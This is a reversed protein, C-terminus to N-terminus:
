SAAQSTIRQMATDVWNMVRRVMDRHRKNNIDMDMFRKKRGKILMLLKIDEKQGARAIGRVAVQLLSLLLPLYEMSKRYKYIRADPDGLERLEKRVVSFATEGGILSLFIFMERKLAFLFNIPFSSGPGYAGDLANQFELHITRVKKLFPKEMQDIMRSVPIAVERNIGENVMLVEEPTIETDIHLEKNYSRILITCLMFANRDSYQISLPNRCIDSLIFIAAKKPQKLREILRQMANLFALRDKRTVMEKLYYWLFEFVKKEHRIFDSIRAEFYDRSFGGEATFCGSLLRILERADEPEIKFELAIMRYDAESFTVEKGIMKKVKLRTKARAYYFSFPKALSPPLDTFFVGGGADTYEIKRDKMRIKDFVEDPVYELRKRINNLVEENIEQYDWDGEIKKLLEAIMSLRDILAAPSITDFDNGYISEMIKASQEPTSKFKEDIIQVIRAKENSIVDHVRELMSWQINNIEFPPRVLKERIKKISFLASYISTFQKRLAQAEPRHMWSDIKSVLGNLVEPELGNLAALLVLNPNPRRNEDKIINLRVEKEDKKYFADSGTSMAEHYAALIRLSLRMREIDAPSEKPIELYLTRIKYRSLISFGDALRNKLHSFKVGNREIIAKICDNDLVIDGFFVTYDGPNSKKGNYFQEKARILITREHNPKQDLLRLTDIFRMISVERTNKKTLMRDEAISLTFYRVFDVLFIRWVDEAKEADISQMSTGPEHCPAHDAQRIDKIDLQNFLRNVEESLRLDDIDM